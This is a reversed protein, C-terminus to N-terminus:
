LLNRAVPNTWYTERMQSLFIFVMMDRAEWGASSWINGDEDCKIGDASGQITQGNVEM